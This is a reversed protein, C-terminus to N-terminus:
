SDADPDEWRPHGDMGEVYVQGAQLRTAAALFHLNTRDAVQQILPQSLM